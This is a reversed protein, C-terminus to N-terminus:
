KETEKKSLSDKIRNEDNDMVDDVAVAAPKFENRLTQNGKLTSRFRHIVISDSTSFLSVTFPCSYVEERSLIRSEAGGGEADPMM